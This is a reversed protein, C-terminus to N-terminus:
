FSRRGCYPCRPFEAPVLQRCGLCAHAEKPPQLRRCARVDRVFDATSAYRFRDEVITAKRIVMGLEYSIDTNLAHPNPLPEKLQQEVIRVPNTGAYPLKGTALHYMIAGLSFIDSKANVPLGLAIEPAVYHLNMVKKPNITVVSSSDLVKAFGFDSLVYSHTGVLINSPKLDRHIIRKSHVHQLAGGIQSGVDVILEESMPTAGLMSELSKAALDMAIWLHDRTRGHARIKVVNPHDLRELLRAQREFHKVVDKDRVDSLGLVKVAVQGKGDPADAAYVKAYEGAGIQDRVIYGDLSTGTLDKKTFWSLM